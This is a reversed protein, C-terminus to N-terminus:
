YTIHHSGAHKKKMTSFDQHFREGHEDSLNPPFFDLHSHLFHVKLSMNCGISQYVSLLDEVFEKYNEVKVNGLFKLCVAKL